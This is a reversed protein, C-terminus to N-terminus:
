CSRGDRGCPGDTCTLADREFGSAEFPKCKPLKPFRITKGYIHACFTATCTSSLGTQQVAATYTVKLMRGPAWDAQQQILLSEPGTLIAEPMCSCNFKRADCKCFLPARNTTVTTIQLDAAFGQPDAVPTLSANFPAPPAGRGGFPRNSM